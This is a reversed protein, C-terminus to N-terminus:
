YHSPSRHQQVTNICVRAKESNVHSHILVLAEGFSWAAIWPSDVAEVAQPGSDCSGVSRVAM